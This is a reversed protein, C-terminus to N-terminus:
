PTQGVEIVRLNSINNLQESQAVSYKNMAMMYADKALNIDRELSSLTAEIPAYRGTLSKLRSVESQINRVNSKSMQMDLETNMKRIVLEQKTANPNLLFGDASRRVEYDLSRRLDRISDNLRDNEFGTVAYRESLSKIRSTSALLRRNFAGAQDEFYKRENPSFKNDINNLAAQMAPIKEREAQLREELDKIQEILTRTEEDYNMVQNDQKFNKLERVKADLEKKKGVTLKEFYDVSNNSRRSKM